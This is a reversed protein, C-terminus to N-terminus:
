GESNRLIGGEGRCGETMLCGAGYIGTPHFQVFELDENPLGARSVMATGDGTCTHASTCSFYSRGYGGCALVTYHSRMRHITGDAINYAVVGRCEGDEM